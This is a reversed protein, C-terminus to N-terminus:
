LNYGVPDSLLWAETYVQACGSTRAHGSTDILDFSGVKAWDGVYIWAEAYPHKHDNTTSM